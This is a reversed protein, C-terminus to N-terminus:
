EVKLVIRGVQKARQAGSIQRYAERAKSLPFVSDAKGATLSGNELLKMLEHMIHLYRGHKVPALAWIQEFM